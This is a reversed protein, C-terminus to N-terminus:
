EDNKIGNLVDFLHTLNEATEQNQNQKDERWGTFNNQLSFKAGNSGDRDFLREEAYQECKAKARTITDCYVKKGQYTLLGQRSAFGLALALGTITPPHADLVIPRGFKDLVPKGEDDTMPHGKCAAFYEDIKAQMEEVSKYKPPRGVHPKKTTAM